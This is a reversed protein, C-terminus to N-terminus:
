TQVNKPHMVTHQRLADTVRTRLADASGGREVGVVLRCPEASCGPMTLIVEAFAGDHGVPTVGVVKTPLNLGRATDTVLRAIQDLSLMELM